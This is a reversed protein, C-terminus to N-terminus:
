VNFRFLIVDGEQVIYEKGELRLAGHQKATQFSGHELMDDYSVIEAKIFGRAFDTHIVGAAEIASTHTPITWARVEPEGATYFSSLGLLSYSTQNIRDLGSVGVGLDERFAAADEPSLAMIESEIKGCVATVAVQRMAAVKELGFEQVVRAIRPGDEDGLNMLILAPKSSLFTFGRVLKSENQTLDMERLPQEQELHGKLRSLLTREKELDADRFKKLDKELRELRREVITLDSLMLELEFLEIDRRPDLSGQCHPVSEDEFARVVHLVADANKLNNLYATWERGSIEVAKPDGSPVMGPLDVYEVTAHTVKKPRFLEALRDVRSDAVKAIGLRAEVKGSWSTASTTDNTLLNFITTKGSQPFGVIGM